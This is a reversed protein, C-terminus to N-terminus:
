APWAPVLFARRLAAVVETMRVSKPRDVSERGGSHERRRPYEADAHPESRLIRPRLRRVDRHYHAATERDRPRRASRDRADGCRDDGGEFAPTEPAWGFAPGPIRWNEKAGREQAQKAEEYDILRYREVAHLAKTYPTGYMDVMAFPGRARGKSKTMDTGRQTEVGRLGVPAPPPSLLKSNGDPIVSGRGEMPWWQRETQPCHRACLSCDEQENQRRGIMGPDYSARRRYQIGIGLFESARLPEVFRQLM